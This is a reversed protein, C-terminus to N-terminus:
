GAAAAGAACSSELARLLESRDVPRPLVVLREDGRPRVADLPASLAIVPIGLGEYAILLEWGATGRLAVDGPAEMNLVVVDAAEALPCRQGSTVPCAFDPGGPGACTLCPSGTERIWGAVRVRIEPDREVLLVVPRAAKPTV